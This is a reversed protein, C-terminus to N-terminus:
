WEGGMDSLDATVHTLRVMPADDLMRWEVLQEGVEIIGSLMQTDSTPDPNPATRDLMDALMRLDHATLFADHRYVAVPTKIITM